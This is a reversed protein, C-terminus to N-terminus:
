WDNDLIAALVVKWNKWNPQNLAIRDMGEDTPYLRRLLRLEVGRTLVGGSKGGQTQPWADATPLQLLM